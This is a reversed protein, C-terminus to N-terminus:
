PHPVRCALLFGISSVIYPLCYNFMIRALTEADLDGTFLAEGQYFLTLLTGVILAIRLAPRRTRGTVM